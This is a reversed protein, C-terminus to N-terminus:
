ILLDNELIEKLIEWRIEGNQDLPSEPFDLFPGKSISENFTPINQIDLMKNNFFLSRTFSDLLLENITFQMCGALIWAFIRAEEINRIRNLQDLILEQHPKINIPVSKEFANGFYKLPVFRCQINIWNIDKTTNKCNRVNYNWLLLYCPKNLTFILDSFKSQRIVCKLRPILLLVKKEESNEINSDKLCNLNTKKKFLIDCDSIKNPYNKEDIYTIAVVNPQNNLKLDYNLSNGNVNNDIISKHNPSTSSISEVCTSDITVFGCFSANQTSIYEFESSYKGEFTKKDQIAVDKLTSSIKDTILNDDMYYISEEFGEEKLTIIGKKIYEYEERRANTVLLNTSEVTLIHKISFCESFLGIPLGKLFGTKRKLRGGRGFFSPPLLWATNSHFGPLLCRTCSPIIICRNSNANCSLLPRRSQEIVTLPSNIQSNQIQDYIHFRPYIKPLILSRLTEISLKNREEIIYNSILMIMENQLRMVEAQYFYPILRKQYFEINNPFKINGINKYTLVSNRPTFNFNHENLALNRIGKNKNVCSTYHKRNEEIEFCMVENQHHQYSKDRQIYTKFSFKDINLSNTFSQNALQSCIKCEINQLESGPSYNHMSYSEYKNEGSLKAKKETLEENSFLNNDMLHNLISRKKRNPSNNM